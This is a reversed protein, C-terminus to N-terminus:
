GPMRVRYFDNVGAAERIEPRDRGGAATTYPIGTSDAIRV